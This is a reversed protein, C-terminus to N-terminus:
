GWGSGQSPCADSALNFPVFYGLSPLLGNRNIQGRSSSKVLRVELREVM